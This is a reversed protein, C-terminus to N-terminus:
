QTPPSDASTKVWEKFQVVGFCKYFVFKWLVIDVQDPPFLRILRDINMMNVLKKFERDPEIVADLVRLLRTKWARAISKYKRPSFLLHVINM